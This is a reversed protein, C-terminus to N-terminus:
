PPSNLREELSRMGLERATALASDNLALARDRDSPQGRALLMAAYQYRTHAVWPHAAMRANVTLADEFHRAAEDWREMTAALAGLYRSLAGHCVVAAGVVVNRGAFPLLIEYLIAAREKDGLFTCVDTLYTMCGMWMSDRPLDAFDNRALNEFETRAEDTRGLESYILALGPRWTAAAPNQTVFFRVAPEVEKLRGQERRLTFMQLGFIGAAYETQLRQGLALAQRALRESDTFRGQMLARMARFIADNAFAFPEQLEEALRAFADIAADTGVIDGFDLSCLAKWYPARYALDSEVRNTTGLHLMEAVCALRQEASEPRQSAYLMGNLGDYLLQPDDLRRCMAVAQEGYFTAQPDGTVGLVRALGSLTQAKLRSDEAGLRQLAEDLLRPAPPAPLGVTFTLKTLQLAADVLFETSDLKQALDAARLLTERSKLPDGARYQEEALPLLLSCRQAEDVPQPLAQLLGLAASFHTIAESHAVRAAAQKGALHFYKIAPKKQGGCTYHHALETAIESTREGYAAEEREAIRRHLESRRGLPVREYLVEQYLAHLFRYRASTTGDPWENGGAGRVFQERRALLTCCTEIEGVPRELAAGVAAASFEAGAVSASELVRQEDPTLRELNHEIMQLIGHPAEIKGTDPEPGQAALYDVVNVMFLPNGDTRKHIAPALGGFKSAGDGAFRQALYAAVKDEGLLKLPLEECHRHLELERKLARLPHERALMEAPRYTGVIMLRAPASRRAIAAILELTSPDSWHLDEIFLALPGDASMVELAEAMERLMRDRTAGQVQGQLRVRDEASVLSPMQVLWTPALRHLIELLPEGGPERSLRTLGDLVPMYPEGAGYQEVCQGRAIRLGPEGAISDLFAGVFTTKGIGPEGSVFVVRRTGSKVQAFWEGLRALETERGVVIAASTTSRSAVLPAAGFSRNLKALLGRVPRRHLHVPRPARAEHQRYAREAFVSIIALAIMGGGFWLWYGSLFNSVIRLDPVAQKSSLSYLYSVVLGATVTGVAAWLRRLHPWTWWM